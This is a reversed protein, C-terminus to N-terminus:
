PNTGLPEEVTTTHNANGAFVMPNADWLCFGYAKSRNVLNCYSYGCSIGYAEQSTYSTSSWYIGSYNSDSPSYKASGQAYYGSYPLFFWDNPDQHSADTSSLKKVGPKAGNNNIVTATIVNNSADKAPASATYGSIKSLKKFWRGGTYVKFDLKDTNTMSSNKFGNPCYWRAGEVYGGAKLLWTIQNYTPCMKCSLSAAVNGYHYANDGTTPATGGTTPNYAKADWKYFQPRGIPCPWSPSASFKPKYTTNSNNTAGTTTSLMGINCNSQADDPEVVGTAVGDTGVEEYGNIPTALQLILKYRHGVKYTTSKFTVDSEYSKSTNANIGDPGSITHITLKANQPAASSPVFRQYGSHSWLTDGYLAGAYSLAYSDTTSTTLKNWKIARLTRDTPYQRDADTGYCDNNLNNTTTGSATYQGNYMYVDSLTQAQIGSLTTTFGSLPTVGAQVELLLEANLPTFTLYTGDNTIATSSVSINQALAYDDKASVSRTALKVGSVDQGVTAGTLGAMSSNVDEDESLYFYINYSGTSPVDITIKYNSVTFDVIKKITTGSCVFAIGTSGNPIGGDESTYLYTARTAATNSIDTLTADVLLGDRLIIRQTEPKASARTLEDNEFGKNIKFTVTNKSVAPTGSEIDDTSSCSSLSMSSLAFAYVATIIFKSTKMKRM